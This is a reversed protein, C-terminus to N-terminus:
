QVIKPSILKGSFSIIVYSEKLLLKIEEIRAGFTFTISDFAKLSESLISVISNGSAISISSPAKEYQLLKFCTLNGLTVVKLSVVKSLLGLKVVISAGFKSVAPPPIKSWQERSVETSKGM